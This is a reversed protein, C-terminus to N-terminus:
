QIEDFDRKGGRTYVEKLKNGILESGAVYVKYGGSIWLLTKTIREILDCNEEDHGTGEAYIRTKYTTTYGNNREVAIIIDQGNEKTAERMEKIVVSLPMFTKDLKAEVKLKM